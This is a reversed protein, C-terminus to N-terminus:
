PKMEWYPPYGYYAHIVAGWQRNALEPLTTKEFNPAKQLKEKEIQLVLLREDPMFTLAEWPVPVWKDGLSLFGGFSVIAYAIRKAEMDIMIEEIKGLDERQPSKVRYGFLTSSRLLTADAAPMSIAQGPTQGGQASAGMALLWSLTALMVLFTGRRQM